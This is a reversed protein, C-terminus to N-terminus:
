FAEVIEKFREGNILEKPIVVLLRDVKSFNSMFEKLGQAKAEIGFVSTDLLVSSVCTGQM